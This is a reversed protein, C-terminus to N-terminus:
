CNIGSLIYGIILPQKLLKVIASIIVTIGVILSLEVFVEM